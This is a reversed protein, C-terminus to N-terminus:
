AISARPFIGEEEQTMPPPPDLKKIIKAPIGGIVVNDPIDGKVVAGAAVTVGNGIKCPGVIVVNGGIWVDDGITIPYAREFGERREQVEVSHTAAYLQVNPGCLVRTGITVKACDAVLITRSHAGKHRTQPISIRVTMNFNSYFEDKFEINKGYDCYFPPEIALRKAKELPIKFLDALIQYREDPGFYDTAEKIDEPEPAPYENYAKLYKRARLRGRVLEMDNMALYPLGRLMKEEETLPRGVDIAGSASMNTTHATQHNEHLKQM